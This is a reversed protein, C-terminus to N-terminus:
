KEAAMKNKKEAARAGAAKLMEVVERAPLALNATLTAGEQKLLLAEALRAADPKDKQLKLLAVLGQAVLIMNSAAESHIAELNLAAKVQNNAEHLQFRVGKSLRLLEANVDKGQLDLKRAGAVLLSTDGAAGFASYWNGSSLSRASGDLVELASAVRSQQQGFVVCKGKIAAYTRAPEDSKNQKKKKEDVWSYITHSKHSHSKADQAAKALTVLRESDIDAYVLLVGDEQNAGSSYLTLGRLQTRLDFSFLAQFAALKAQTEPKKMEELVFQGLSTPRLADFDVHVLWAPDAAVDARRLPGAMATLTLM